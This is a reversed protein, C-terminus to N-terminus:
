EKLPSVFIHCTGKQVHSKKAWVFQAFLGIIINVLSIIIYHNSISKIFHVANFKLVKCIHDMNDKGSHQSCVMGWNVTSSVSAWFTSAFPWSWHAVRASSLHAQYKFGAIKVEFGKNDNWQPPAWSGISLRPHQQICTSWEILSYSEPNSPSYFFVIIM